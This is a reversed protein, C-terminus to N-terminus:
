FVNSTFSYERQNGFLSPPSLLASLKFGFFACESWPETLQFIINWPRKPCSTEDSSSLKNSMSRRLELSRWHVSLFFDVLAHLSDAREPRGTIFILLPFYYVWEMTMHFLERWFWTVPLQAPVIVTIKSYTTWGHTYRVVRSLPWM